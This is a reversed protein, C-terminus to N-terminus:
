CAEISSPRLEQGVYRWPLRMDVKKAREAPDCLRLLKEIIMVASRRGM